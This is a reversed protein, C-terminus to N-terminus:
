PATVHLTCATGAIWGEVTADSGRYDDVVPSNGLVQRAVAGLDRGVARIQVRARVAEDHVIVNWVGSLDTNRAWAALDDLVVAVAATSTARPSSILTPTGAEGGLLAHARVQYEGYYGIVIHNRYADDFPVSVSYVDAQDLLVALRDLAEECGPVDLHVPPQMTISALRTAIDRSATISLPPLDGAERLLASASTLLRDAWM